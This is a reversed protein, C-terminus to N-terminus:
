CICFSVTVKQQEKLNSKLKIQQIEPIERIKITNINKAVPPTTNKGRGGSPEGLMASMDSLSYRHRRRYLEKYQWKTKSWTSFSTTSAASKSHPPSYYIFTKGCLLWTPQVTQNILEHIKQSWTLLCKRKSCIERKFLKTVHHKAGYLRVGNLLIRRLFRMTACTTM